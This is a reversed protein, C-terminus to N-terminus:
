IKEARSIIKSPPTHVTACFVCRMAVNKEAIKELVNDFCEQCLFHSNGCCSLFLQWKAVKEDKSDCPIDQKKFSDVDDFTITDVREEEITATM